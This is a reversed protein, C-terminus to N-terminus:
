LLALCCGHPCLTLCHLMWVCVCDFVIHPLAAAVHVCVCVVLFAHICACCHLALCCGYVCVMLCPHICPSCYLARCCGYTCVNGPLHPGLLGGGVELTANGALGLFGEDEPGAFVRKLSETFIPNLYTDTQVSLGGSREVAGKM